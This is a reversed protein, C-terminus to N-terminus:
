YVLIKHILFLVSAALSFMLGIRALRLSSSWAYFISVLIVSSVSIILLVEVSERMEPRRMSVMVASALGLTQFLLASGLMGFVVNGRPRESIIDAKQKKPEFGIFLTWVWLLLCCVSGFLALKGM